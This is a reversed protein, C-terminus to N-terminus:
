AIAIGFSEALAGRVYLDLAKYPAFQYLIAATIGGWEGFLKKSLLYMSVGGLIAAIFFLIKASIVYGFIFSLIGGIYYPFPNYYNFLPYGNGYGMDPVWRCPIQLDEICKRMEFIRMVHLDDHHSFYGPRFIPWIIFISFILIILIPWYNKIMKTM